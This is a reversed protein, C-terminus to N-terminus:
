FAHCPITLNVARIESVESVSFAPSRVDAWKTGGSVVNEVYVRTQFLRHLPIGGLQVSLAQTIPHKELHVPPFLVFAQADILSVQVPQWAGTNGYECRVSIEATGSKQSVMDLTVDRDQGAVLDVSKAEAEQYAIVKGEEHVYGLASFLRDEGAPVTLSVEVQGQAGEGAPGIGTEPDPWTGSTLDYDEGEVSVAVRVYKPFLELHFQDLNDFPSGTVPFTGKGQPMNLSLTLQVLEADEIPTVFCGASSLVTALSLL